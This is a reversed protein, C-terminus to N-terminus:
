KIIINVERFSVAEAVFVATQNIWKRKMVGWVGNNPCSSIEGTAL